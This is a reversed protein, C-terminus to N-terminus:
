ACTTLPLSSPKAFEMNAPEAIFFASLHSHKRRIAAWASQCFARSLWRNGKRTRNSLRKGASEHNGPCLGAWSSVHRADAFASIDPGMEALITWATIM